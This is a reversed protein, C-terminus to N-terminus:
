ESMRLLDYVAIAAAAEAVCAGRLAICPDHRGKVQLVTNEKTTINITEQEKAISPTPRFKVTFVVPMGNTIRGNVGGSRNTKTQVTNGCMVFADNYVSGFSGPAEDAAGFSVGKVGPISFLIHALRSEVSDFFPEGLGAPLGIIACEVAGGASDGAKEAEQIAQKIQEQVMSLAPLEEGNLKELLEKTIQTSFRDDKVNAIQLLHSGIQIGNQELLARAISGAAVIGATL